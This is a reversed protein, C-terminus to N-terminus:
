ASGLAKANMSQNEAEAKRFKSELIFRSCTPYEAM